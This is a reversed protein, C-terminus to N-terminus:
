VLPREPETLCRRIAQYPGAESVLGSHSTPLIIERAGPLHSDPLPCIRDYRGRLSYFRVQPPLPRAVLKAM